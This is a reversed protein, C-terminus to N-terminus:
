KRRVGRIVDEVTTKSRNTTSSEIQELKEANLANINKLLENCFNLADESTCRLTREPKM